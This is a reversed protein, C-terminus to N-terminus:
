PIKNVGSFISFNNRLFNQRNRIIFFPSENFLTSKMQLTVFSFTQKYRVPRSILFQSRLGHDEPKSSNEEDNSSPLSSLSSALSSLGSNFNKAVRTLNKRFSLRKKPKTQTDSTEGSPRQDASASRQPIPRRHLSRRSTPRSAYYENAATNCSVHYQTSWYM